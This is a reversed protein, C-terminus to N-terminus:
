GKLRPLVKEAIYNLRRNGSEVSEGPFQAWFHIDSIMPYTEIMASLKEVAMDADWLEYLGNDIASRADPFLPTQDPPGFAGWRIYENSQYLVHEGVNAAEAEPDEAIIAWCGLIINGEEPSKGNNKLAEVYVDM